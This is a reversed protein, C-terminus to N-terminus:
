TFSASLERLVLVSTGPFRVFEDTVLVLWKCLPGSGARRKEEAPPVLEWEVERPKM